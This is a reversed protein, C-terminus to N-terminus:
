FNFVKEVGIFQEVMLPKVLKAKSLLNRKKQSNSPVFFLELPVFKHMLRIFQPFM